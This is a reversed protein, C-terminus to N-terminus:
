VPTKRREQRADACTQCRTANYALVEFDKGCDRCGDIKGVRGRGARGSLEAVVRERGQYIIHWGAAAGTGAAGTGAAGTGAAGTGAAGTGAAGTGAAGTGAAGTGAAGATGPIFGFARVPKEQVAQTQECNGGVCHQAAELPELGADMLRMIRNKLAATGDSLMAAIVRFFLALLDFILTYVLWKARNAQEPTVGFAWAIARDDAQWQEVAGGSESIEARQAMLTAMHAQVGVYESHGRAYEGASGSTGANNLMAELRAIEANAPNICHTKHNKPCGALAARAAAIESQLATRTNQAAAQVKAAADADSQARGADAYGALAALRARAADIDADLALAPKSSELRQAAADADTNLAHFLGSSYLAIYALLLAFGAATRIAVSNQAVIVPILVARGATMAVWGAVFIMPLVAGQPANVAWFISLALGLLELPLAAGMLWGAAASPTGRKQWAILIFVAAIIALVAGVVRWDSIIGASM